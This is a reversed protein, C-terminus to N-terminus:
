HRTWNKNPKIYISHRMADCIADFPMCIANCPMLAEDLEQKTQHLDLTTTELRQNLIAVEEQMTCHHYLSPVSPATITSITCHHYQHHLSPVTITCHHCLSSVTITMVYSRIVDCLMADCLM